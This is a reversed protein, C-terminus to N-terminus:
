MQNQEEPETLMMNMFAWCHYKPNQRENPMNGGYGIMSGKIQQGGGGWTLDGCSVDVACYLWRKTESATYFDSFGNSEALSQGYGNLNQLHGATNVRAGGQGGWIKYQNWMRGDFVKRSYILAEWCDNMWHPVSKLLMVLGHAKLTYHGRRRPSGSLSMLIDHSM